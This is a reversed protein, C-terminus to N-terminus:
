ADYGAWQKERAWGKTLTTPVPMPASSPPAAATAEEEEPAAAVKNSNNDRSPTPPSTPRAATAQDQSAELKSAINAALVQVMKVNLDLDEQLVKRLLGADWVLLRATSTTEVSVLRGGEDSERGVFCPVARAAERRDAWEGSGDEKLCEFFSTDGVFDGLFDTAVRSWRSAQLAEQHSMRSYRVSLTEGGSKYALRGSYVLTLQVNTLEDSAAAGEISVLHGPGVTRWRAAELLRRFQAPTVGNPVFVREFVDQEERNFAFTGYQERLLSVLNVVNVTLFISQWFIPNWLPPDRTFCFAIGCIQGAISLSRLTLLDQMSFAALTALAGLNNVWMGWDDGGAFWWAAELRESHITHDLNVIWQPAKAYLSEMRLYALVADLVSPDAVKGAADRAAAAIMPDAAAVHTATTMVTDIHASDLALPTPARTAAAHRPTLIPRPAVAVGHQLALATNHQLALATNVLSLLM